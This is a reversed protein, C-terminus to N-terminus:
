GPTNTPSQTTSKQETFSTTSADTPKNTTEQTTPALTTTQQTSKSHTMSQTTSSRATPANSTPKPTTAITTTPEPTTSITTTTLAATTPRLIIPDLTESYLKCVGSPVENGTYKVGFPFNLEPPHGDHYNKVLYWRGNPESVEERGIWIQFTNFIYFYIHCTIYM